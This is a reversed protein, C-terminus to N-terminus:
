VEDYRIIEVSAVADDEAAALCCFDFKEYVEVDFLSLNYESCITKVIDKVAVEHEIISDYDDTNVNFYKLVVDADHPVICYKVVM